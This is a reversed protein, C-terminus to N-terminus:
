PTGLITEGRKCQSDPSFTVTEGHNKLPNSLRNGIRVSTGICFNRTKRIPIQLILQPDLSLGEGFFRKGRTGVAHFNAILRVSGDPGDESKYNFDESHNVARRSEPDFGVPSPRRLVPTVEEFYELFRFARAATAGVGGAGMAPETKGFAVRRSRDRIGELDRM